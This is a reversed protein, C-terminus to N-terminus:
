ASAAAALLTQEARVWDEDASGGQCGREEWYAYALRAIEEHSPQALPVAEARPADSEVTEATTSAPEVPVATRKARPKAPAKRRAPLPSGAPTM